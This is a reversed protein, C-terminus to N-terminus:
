HGSKKRIFIEVREGSAKGEPTSSSNEVPKYLSSAQISIKEKPIKYNKSLLDAILEARYSNYEWVNRFGKRSAENEYPIQVKLIIDVDMASSLESIRQFAFIMDEDPQFRGEGLSSGFLVIKIEETEQIGINLKAKEKLKKLTYSIREWFRYLQTRPQLLPDNELAATSGQFFSEGLGFGGRIVDAVQKLKTQDVQSISYMIIFLGLLLTIMDAYTLLWRERNEHSEEKRHGKELLQRRLRSM